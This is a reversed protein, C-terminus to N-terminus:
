GKISFSFGETSLKYNSIHIPVKDVDYLIKHFNFLPTGVECSLHKADEVSALDVAIIKDSSGTQINYVKHLLEYTSTYEYVYKLMKPFKDLPYYSIDIAITEEDMCLLRELRLLPADQYINLDKAQETSAQVTTCSLIRSSPHKGLQKIFDSFGDVTILERTLKQKRIFTGKGQKRELVGEETLEKLARRVTIRSVGYISGLEAENMLKTGPTLEGQEIQNKIGHALQQYLPQISNTSLKSNMPLFEM